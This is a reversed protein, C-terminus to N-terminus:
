LLGYSELLPGSEPPRGRFAIFSEIAPRSAGVSLIEKRLADGIESELPGESQFRGWADAALQEAWLYGYYGAAYGGGFIHSFSTLFRNWGPVPVVCVQRRVQELVDLPNAPNEPDYELHLRM